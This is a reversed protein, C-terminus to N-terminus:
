PLAVFFLSALEAPREFLMRLEHRTNGFVCTQVVITGSPSKETWVKEVGGFAGHQRIMNNWLNSIQADSLNRRMNAEFRAVVLDYRGKQMNALAERAIGEPSDVWQIPGAGILMLAPLLLLALRVTKKGSCIKIKLM